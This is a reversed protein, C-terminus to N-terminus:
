YKMNKLSVNLMTKITQIKHKLNEDVDKPLDFPFYFTEPDGTVLENGEM